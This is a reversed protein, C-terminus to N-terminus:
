KSILTESGPSAASHNIRAKEMDSNAYCYLCGHPCSNYMGIDISEACLCSARQNKDKKYDIRRGSLEEILEPDICSGPKVAEAIKGEEACSRIQLGAASATDTFFSFLGYLEEEKTEALKIGSMNKRCKRYFDFYSVICRETYGELSSLIESFMKSHYDTTYRDTIIVPDYRWIVRRRGVRESLEKLSSLKNQLDGLGTEMDKGYPNLTYLFYYCYGMEDINDLYKMFPSADKTWLVLADVDEKKLSVTRRQNPNYPNPVEAFGERLRTLLWEGYFSPIDTRRSASIIM